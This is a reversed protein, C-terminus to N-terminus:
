NYVVVNSTSSGCVHKLLSDKRAYDKPCNKCKYRIKNERDEKRKENNIRKVCENCNTTYGDKTYLHIAYNAIEKTIHCISCKKAELVTQDLALQQMEARRKEKYALKNKKECARCTSSKGDKKSRDNNFSDMDFDQTCTGCKKLLPPFLRVQDGGLPHDSDSRPELPADDDIDMKTDEKVADEEAEFLEEETHYSTYQINLSRAQQEIFSIIEEVPVNVIWENQFLHDMYKARICNEILSYWHSFLVFVINPEFYTRYTQMRSNLCRTKGFKCKNPVDPNVVLYICEGKKLTHRRRKYVIRNHNQELNAYKSRVEELQKQLETKEEQVTQQLLEEVKLYYDHIEDAKQTGAKMCFKKFTNITLTISETPRGGVNLVPEHPKGSTAPISNEVPEHPKGSTAPALESLSVKYDVGLVFNKNLVVKANDKRTFGCWQWVKHFDVVFDTTKNYNLYCYFSGVFLQQQTPTFTDRIKSILKSESVGTLRIPSKEIFKVIDFTSTM